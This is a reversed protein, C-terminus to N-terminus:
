LNNLKKMQSIGLAANISAMRLNLSKEQYILEFTYKRKGNNVKDRIDKYIKYNNTIVAELGTTIIKNGNFSLCGANGFTHM